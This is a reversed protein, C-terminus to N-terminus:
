RVSVNINNNLASTGAQELVACALLLPVYLDIKHLSALVEQIHYMRWCSM